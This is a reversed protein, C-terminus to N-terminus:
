EGAVAVGAAGADLGGGFDRLDRCVDPCGARDEGPCVGRGVGAGLAMARVATTAAVQCFSGDDLRRLARGTRDLAGQLFEADGIVGQQRASRRDVLGCSPEDEFGRM